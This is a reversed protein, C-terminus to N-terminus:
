SQVEIIDGEHLDATCSPCKRARGDIDSYCFLCEKVVKTDIKKKRMQQFMRIVFFLSVSMLFFNIILQFFNGYNLTVAGDLRAEDRTKYPFHPGKRIVYFTESLKSTVFLGFIPTFVDSVFSSVVASFANGIVLGIALDLISARNIFKKFDHFLTRFTRRARQTGDLLLTREDM